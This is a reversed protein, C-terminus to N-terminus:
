QPCTLDQLDNCGHWAPMTLAYSALVDMGRMSVGFGGQLTHTCVQMSAGCPQLSVRAVEFGGGVATFRNDAIPMRDLTVAPGGIKRTVAIAQDFWPLVAFTLNDLLQDASVALSLSPECDIGQTMLLPQTSTVFFDGTSVIEAPVGGALVLTGSPPTALDAVDFTVTADAAALLRWISAGPHGLLTDCTGPQPRLAAAVYHYSWAAIPPIQEHAMDPSNVGSVTQGYTTVINGSFVAVPQDAKIETGSLDEGEAGSWIQFVDGEGITTQFPMSTDVGYLGTVASPATRALTIVVNTNPQTGVILLRGAGDPAGVASVATGTAHQAYTMVLYHSGLVHTPLVMTGSSSLANQDADDSEIQAVTVPWDSILRLGDDPNPGSEIIQHGAVTLRAAAGGAVPLVQRSTWTGGGGREELTVTATAVGPNTVLFSTPADADSAANDAEATYFFCGEFSTRVRDADACAPTMCRGQSCAGVMMCDDIVGGVIGNNCDRVVMGDCIPPGACTPITEGGDPQQQNSTAGCGFLALAVVPL